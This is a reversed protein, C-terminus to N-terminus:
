RDVRPPFIVRDSCSPCQARNERRRKKLAAVAEAPANKTAAQPPAIWLSPSASEGAGVGAGVGVGGAGVGDGVGAGEGVGAGAGLGVGLGVGTGAGVGAGVGAGPGVGVGVGLGVGGGGGGAQFTDNGLKTAPPLVVNSRAVVSGLPMALPPTNETEELPFGSGEPM